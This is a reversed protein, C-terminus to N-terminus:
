AANPRNRATLLHVAASLSHLTEEFAEATRVAELNETLRDQLRVLEQEGAVVKLLVDKQNKLEQVQQQVANTTQGLQNQWGTTKEALVSILENMHQSQKAQGASIHQQVHQSIQQFAAAFGDRLEALQQAHNSFTLAMGEQLSLTLKDQQDALTDTWRNRLAELSDKWLDMQWQVVAETKELLQRAAHNQLDAISGTSGSEAAVPFLFVLRRCAFDEVHTLVQKESRSVVFQFFVLVLSLSLSLATTDFAVALGSTVASMSTSLQEPSGAVNAIALTIGMVTGLFGVIPVAWNITRVLGLSDEARDFSQDALYKLHEELGESSQRGRVYACADAIRRVLYSERWADPLTKLHADLQDAMQEADGARTLNAETLDEAQLSSKESGLKLYKLALIALGMFFLGAIAYELPHGCFYRVLLERNTPMHPILQYFGVTLAGGWLLPSMGVAALWKTSSGASEKVQSERSQAEQMALNGNLSRAFSESVFRRGVLIHPPPTKGM